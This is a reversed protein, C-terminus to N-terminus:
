LIREHFQSQNLPYVIQYAINMVFLLEPDTLQSHAKLVDYYDVPSKTNKLENVVKNDTFEPTADGNIGRDITYLTQSSIQQDTILQDLELDYFKKRRDMKRKENKFVMSVYGFNKVQTSYRMPANGIMTQILNFDSEKIDVDAVGNTTLSIEWTNFDPFITKFKPTQYRQDLADRNMSNFIYSSMM